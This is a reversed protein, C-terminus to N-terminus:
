GRFAARGAIARRRERKQYALITPHKTKGQKRSAKEGAPWDESQRCLLAQGDRQHQQCAKAQCLLGAPRGEIYVDV